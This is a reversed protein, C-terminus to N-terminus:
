FVWLIGLEQAENDPIMVGKLIHLGDKNTKEGILVCSDAWEYYIDMLGDYVVEQYGGDLRNQEEELGLEGVNNFVGYQNGNIWYNDWGYLNHTRGDKKIIIFIVNETPLEEWSMESSTIGSLPLSGM